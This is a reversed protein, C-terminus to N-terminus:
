LVFDLYNERDIVSFTAGPHSDVWEKPPKAKKTGWKFEFGHLTGEREEVFDIEKKSASRWFYTNAAIGQYAQKKLREIYLFNEWLQGVDNRLELPNFNAILANRIGVDFFFCKNKKRLEKRPNAGLGSLRHIIFSKELLDIYRDVTKYNIGIQTGIETLSVESGVQLALLRLLDFLARSNKIKDLTLVDKLLYSSTLETLVLTKEQKSAASLVEPYSGFIMCEELKLRLDYRNHQRSLEAQAVPYLTLTRKRGTLPEGVQGALEFSSSGTVIVRISPISDVLMKLGAGIDPTKQAEDVVILEYGQAFDALLDARQALFLEQIRKDERTTLRYKWSTKKLYQKVLTTKGVQRPGYIVLVKGPHIYQELDDYHRPIV